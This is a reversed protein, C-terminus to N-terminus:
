LNPVPQVAPEQPAAGLPRGGLPVGGSTPPDGRGRARGLRTPHTSDEIVCRGRRRSQRCAASVSPADERVQRVRRKEVRTATLRGDSM